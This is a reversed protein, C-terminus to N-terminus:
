VCRRDIWADSVFRRLVTRMAQSHKPQEAAAAEVEVVANTRPAFGFWTLESKWGAVRATTNVREMVRLGWVLGFANRFDRWVADLSSPDEKEEAESDTQRRSREGADRTQWCVSLVALSLCMTGATWHWQVRSVAFPLHPVLLLVQGFTSCLAPFWFRTPLYNTFGVVLLIVFLWQRMVGEDLEGGSWLVWREAVPLVLVGWLTAVIWQWGRDQPRKAGLVAMLPCFTSVAAAYRISALSSSSLTAWQSFLEVVALVCFSVLTWCYPAHLTTGRFRRFRTMLGVLALLSVM